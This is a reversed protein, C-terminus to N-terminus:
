ATPLFPLLMVVTRAAVRRDALLRVFEGFFDNALIRKVRTWKLAMTNAVIMIMM